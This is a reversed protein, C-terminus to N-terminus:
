SNVVYTQNVARLQKFKVASYTTIGAPAVPRTSSLRAGEQSLKAHDCRRVDSLRRINGDLVTNHADSHNGVVFFKAPVHREPCEPKDDRAPRADESLMISRALHNLESSM